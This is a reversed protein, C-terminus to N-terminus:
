LSKVTPRNSTIDSINNVLNSTQKFRRGLDELFNIVQPRIISEGETNKISRELVEQNRFEDFQNPVGKPEWLKTKVQPTQFKIIPFKKFSVNQSQGLGKSCNQGSGRVLM